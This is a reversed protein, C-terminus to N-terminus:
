PGVPHGSLGRHVRSRPLKMWRQGFIDYSGNRFDQWVVLFETTLDNHALECRSQVELAGSLPFAPVTPLGVCPVRRAWVDYDTSQNLVWYAVLFEQSQHDYGVVPSSEGAAGDAVAFPAGLLAGAGDLRQAWVDNGGARADGWVVLFEDHALSYALDCKNKDGAAESIPYNPGALSGTAGLRQGYVDVRANRADQWIVEYQNSQRNLAARPNQASGLSDSVPINGGLLAGAASLRQGWIRWAGGTFAHWVVLYENAVPNHVVRPRGENVTGTDRSVLIPTALPELAGSLRRGYIEFGSGPSTVEQWVVLYGDAVTNHAVAPEGYLAAASALIFEPALAAGAASVRRYFVDYDQLDRYDAWVTLYENRLLNHAVAPAEQGKRGRSVAILGGAHQGSTRVVQAALDAQTLFPDDTFAVLYDNYTGRSTIAPKTRVNYWERVAFPAGIAGAGTVQRAYIEWQEAGSIDQQFAVLFEAASTHGAVVPALDHHAGLFIGMAAGSLAGARDLRQGYVDWTVGSRGDQWVILYRGAGRSYAVRPKIQNNVATSAAKREIRYLDWTLHDVWIDMGSTLHWQQWVVVFRSDDGNHCVDPEGAQGVAESLLLGADRPLATAASYRRILIQSNGDHPDSAWVVVCEGSGCAVRAAFADSAGGNVTIEAGVPVGTGSVRRVIVDGAGNRFDTWVVWFGGSVPDFAVSAALQVGPADCIVFRAGILAGSTAVRQAYVNTLTVRDFAHWVALYEDRSPNYAVAAGDLSESTSVADAANCIPFNAGVLGGPTIATAAEVAARVPAPVAFAALWRTVASPKLAGEDALDPAAAPLFGPATRRVAAMGAAALVEDASQQAPAAGVGGLCVLVVLIVPVFGRDLRM